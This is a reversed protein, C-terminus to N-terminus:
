RGLAAQRLARAAQTAVFVNGTENLHVTDRTLVGRDKDEPNFVRLHSQFARRLDCPTAGEESAVRRSIASYEELMEDLANTGLPAEGIVSPTALVVAAGSSRLGRVLERLGAEYEAAPTGKGSTSHWVDNIGIYVFVLTAGRAIVDKEYRRLLDPVKHGSIGAPIVAAEPREEALVTRLLDVYGGPRAGGQTISDGLFAVREDPAIAAALLEASATLQAQPDRRAALLGEVCGGPDYAQNWADHGVGALEHYDVELGMARLTEVLQRSREVPVAGDADGHWVSLPLGGLRAAAREDGGGCVPAASTFWGPHRTALDWTGYGGMSLGTLSIRELDIPHARVVEELAGVAARMAPTPAGLPTSVLAAWDTEVWRAGAPCQPALVYCAHASAAMRVPFHAKQRANDDGREGAGHLFLVLPYREGPVVEAPPLLLYPYDHEEVRVAGELYERERPVRPDHDRVPRARVGLKEYAFGSALPTYPGVLGVDSDARIAGEMGLGWYLANVLLRRLGASEFDRASGMTSHFVRAAKGEAGTWTKVWAVPLPILDENPGDTPQRGTLPQGMLLPTCGEPLGEGEPYTRYVDSPGWVDEVGVLVPHDSHEPVATARTSDQHWRGHHGRFAGGLVDDGFRVRDSNVQYGFELFGHNATRLALIPKGSDLYAHLHARQEAPLTLLRTFLIMADARALHELGPIDHVVGEQEWAIKKTPDVLGQDNVGFLVTTHFGHREALLHALMPMSQESRYEQDAAILVVHQGAGPGEGGAFTLWRPDEPVPHDTPALTSLLLPLIMRTM